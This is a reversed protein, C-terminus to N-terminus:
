IRSSYIKDAMAVPSVDLYINLVTYDEGGFASSFYGLSDKGKKFKFEFGLDKDNADPAKNFALGIVEQQKNDILNSM